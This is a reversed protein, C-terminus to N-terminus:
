IDRLSVSFEAEKVRGGNTTLVTTVKYSVGTTGGSLWVKVVGNNLTFSPMVIGTDVSATASKATDQFAALWANYDVDYDQVDLPQKTFKGLLAM